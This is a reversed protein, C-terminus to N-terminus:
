SIPPKDLGHGLIVTASVITGTSNSNAEATTLKTFRKGGIYGFKYVDAAVAGGALTLIIGSSPTVGQVDAAAVNAYAGAAGTGDDDAHQLQFTITGTDGAGKAGCSIEYVASNFGAHDIEVPTPVTADLVLVPVISQVPKIHNYLDKM